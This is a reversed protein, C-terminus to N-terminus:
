IHTFRVDRFHTLLHLFRERSITAKLDLVTVDAVFNTGRTAGIELVKWFLVNELLQEYVKRWCPTLLYETQTECMIM